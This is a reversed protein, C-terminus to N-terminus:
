PAFAGSHTALYVDTGQRPGSVDLYVYYKDNVYVADLLFSQLWGKIQQLAFGPLERVRQWHLGDASTAVGVGVNTYSGQDGLYVMTWGQPTQLVNPDFIRRINWRPSPQPAYVPDSEAHLADTTGPDNYKTWHIGDPSTARGVLRPGSATDGGAYYMVYGDATRLVSPNTVQYSDWSGSSGKGLAPAPDATWPGTPAPATARGISGANFNTQDLILYYLVWTGDDEVLASSAFITYGIYPVNTTTFIPTTGVQTWNVGDTSTAYGVGVHAPWGDIGNFFMHFQGAHYVMAGPDIYRTPWQGNTSHMLVPVDANVDFLLGPVQTSTPKLTPSPKLTATPVTTATPAPTHTPAPAASPIVTPTVVPACAALVAVVSVVILSRYHKDMPGRYAISKYHKSQLLFRDPKLTWNAMFGLPWNTM